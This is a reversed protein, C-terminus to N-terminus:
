PKSEDISWEGDILYKYEYTTNASPVIFKALYSFNSGEDHTGYFHNLKIGTVWNDWSGKIEVSDLSRGITTM